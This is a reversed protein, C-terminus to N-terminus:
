AAELDEFGAGFMPKYRKFVTQWDPDYAARNSKIRVLGQLHCLDQGPKTDVRPGGIKEIQRRCLRMLRTAAAWSIKRPNRVVALRKDIEEAWTVSVKTM